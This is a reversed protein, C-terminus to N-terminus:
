PERVFLVNENTANESFELWRKKNVPGSIESMFRIAEKFNTNIKIAQLCSNRAEEGRFLYWLCTAKMLWADSIEPAWFGQELYRDYWYLATLYDKRYLYERALYYKERVLNLNKEVQKKLIRLTRDPDKQHAPSYGYFVKIAVDNSEVINLYNHVAGLWFIERCNRFARIQRHEQNGPDSIVRFRMTKFGRIKEIEDRVKQIGGDEIHEDADIILVWDGTCFKLSENRAESFNDNWSYHEAIYSVNDYRRAIEGTKDTSGTDLIIIEDADKISELCRTLVQEENKVIM